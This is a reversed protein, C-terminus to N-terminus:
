RGGDIKQRAPRERAKLIWAGVHPFKAHFEKPASRLWLVVSCVNLDAITFRGGVLHGGGAVLADDLVKLPKELAALAKTVVAPDRKEPAFGATHMVVDLAHKEVETMAWFSWMAILGDEAIDAPALAGGAKRALYLNIALSEWLTLDGDQMAPVHGNPNIKLYDPARTDGVSVLEYDVGTEEAAWVCRSARSRMSGFIKVKSM